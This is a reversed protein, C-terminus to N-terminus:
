ATAPSQAQMNQYFRIYNARRVKAAAELVKRRRERAKQVALSPLTTLPTLNYETM